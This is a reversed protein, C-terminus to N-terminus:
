PKREPNRVLKAKAVGRNTEPPNSKNTESLDRVVDKGGGVTLIVFRRQVETRRRVKRLIVEEEGLDM